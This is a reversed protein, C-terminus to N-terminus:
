SCEQKKNVNPNGFSLGKNFIASDKFLKATFIGERKENLGNVRNSNSNSNGRLNSEKESKIQNKVLKLDLCPKQKVKHEKEPFEVM